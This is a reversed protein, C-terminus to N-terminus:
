NEFTVHYFDINVKYLPTTMDFSITRSRAKGIRFLGIIIHARFTSTERKWDSSRQSITCSAGPGNNFEGCPSSIGPMSGISRLKRKYLHSGTERLKCIQTFGALGM